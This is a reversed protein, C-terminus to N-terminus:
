RRIRLTQPDGELALGFGVRSPQDPLPSGARLSRLCLAEVQRWVFQQTIRSARALNENNAPLYLEITTTNSASRRGPSAAKSLDVRVLYRLQDGRVESVTAEIGKAKANLHDMRGESYGQPCAARALSPILTLSLSLSLLFILFRPRLNM